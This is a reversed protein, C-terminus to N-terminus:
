FEVFPFMERFQDEVQPFRTRQEEAHESSMKCELPPMGRRYAIAVLVVKADQEFSWDPTFGIINFIKALPGDFELLDVLLTSVESSRELVNEVWRHFENLTIAGYFLCSVAFGLESSDKRDFGKM